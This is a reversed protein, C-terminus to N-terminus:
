SPDPHRTVLETDNEPRDEPTHAYAHALARTFPMPKLFHTM